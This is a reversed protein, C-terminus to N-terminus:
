GLSLIELAFLRVEFVSGTAREHSTPRCDFIIGAASPTPQDSGKCQSHLLQTNTYHAMPWQNLGSRHWFESKYAWEVTILGSFSNTMTYPQNETWQNM